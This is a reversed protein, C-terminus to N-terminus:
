CCFLTKAFRTFVLSHLECNIYLVLHLMDWFLLSFIMVWSVVFMWGPSFVDKFFKYHCQMILKNCYQNTQLCIKKYQLLIGIYAIPQLPSTITTTLSNKSCSITFQYYQTTHLAVSSESILFDGLLSILHTKDSCCGESPTLFLLSHIKTM